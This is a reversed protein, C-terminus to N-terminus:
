IRLDVVLRLRRERAREDTKLRVCGAGFRALVVVGRVGSAAGAGGVRSAEGAAFDSGLRVVAAPGPM